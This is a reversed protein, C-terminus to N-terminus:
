KDSKKKLDDIYKSLLNNVYFSEYEEIFKKIAEDKKVKNYKCWKDDFVVFSILPIWGMFFTRLLFETNVDIKVNEKDMMGMSKQFVSNYLPFFSFSPKDKISEMMMLKIAKQRSELFDYSVRLMAQMSPQPNSKITEISKEKMKVSDNELDKMISDMIDKKSKFYYYILSKTIKCERALEDMGVSDFGKKSFLNLATNQIHKKLNQKNQKKKM